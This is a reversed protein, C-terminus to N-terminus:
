NAHARWSDSRCPYELVIVGNTCQSTGVAASGILQHDARQTSPNCNRHTQALIQQCHSLYSIDDEREQSRAIALQDRRGWIRQGKHSKDTRRSLKCPRPIPCRECFYHMYDKM